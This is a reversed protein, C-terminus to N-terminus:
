AQHLHDVFNYFYVLCNFLINGSRLLAAPSAAALVYCLAYWCVFSVICCSPHSCHLPLFLVFRLFILSILFCHWIDNDLCISRNLSKAAPTKDTQPGRGELSGM